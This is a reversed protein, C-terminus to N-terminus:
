SLPTRWILKGFFSFARLIAFVISILYRDAPTYVPQNSRVMCSSKGNELLFSAVPTPKEIPNFNIAFFILFHESRMPFKIHSLNKSKVICYVTKAPISPICKLMQAIMTRNPAACPNNRETYRKEFGSFLCALLHSAKKSVTMESWRISYAAAMVPIVSWYGIKMAM